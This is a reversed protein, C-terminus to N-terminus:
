PRGSYRLRLNRNQARQEHTNQREVRAANLSTGDAGPHEPDRRRLSLLLLSLDRVKALLGHLAVQDALPGSLTTEGSADDSSLTM